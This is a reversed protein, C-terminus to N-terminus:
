SITTHYGGGGEDRLVSLSLYEFRINSKKQKVSWLSLEINDDQTTIKRGRTGLFDNNATFYVLLAQKSSYGRLANFM